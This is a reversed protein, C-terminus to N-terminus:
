VRGKAAVIGSRLTPVSVQPYKQAVAKCGSLENPSNVYLLKL